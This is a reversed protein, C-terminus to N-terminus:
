GGFDPRARLQPRAIRRRGLRQHQLIRAATKTIQERAGGADRM